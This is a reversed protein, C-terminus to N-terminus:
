ADNYKSQLEKLLKLDKRKEIAKRHKEDNNKIEQYQELTIIGMDRKIYDEVGDNLEIEYSDGYVRVDFAAYTDDEFIMLVSEDCDVFDARKITKGELESINMLFKM